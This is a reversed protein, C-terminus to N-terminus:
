ETATRRWIPWHLQTRLLRRMIKGSRTKPPDAIFLYAGYAKRGILGNNWAGVVLVGPFGGPAGSIQILKGMAM